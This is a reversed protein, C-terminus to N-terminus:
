DEDGQVRHATLKFKLRLTNVPTAHLALGPSPHVAGQREARSVVRREARSLASDLVASEGPTLGYLLNLQSKSSLPGRSAKKSEDQKWKQENVAAAKDQQWDIRGRVVIDNGPISPMRRIREPSDGGNRQPMHTM